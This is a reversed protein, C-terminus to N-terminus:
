YSLAKLELDILCSNRLEKSVFVMASHIILSVGRSKIFTFTKEPAADEPKATLINKCEDCGLSPLLRYIIYGGLYHLIFKFTEPTCYDHDLLESDSPDGYYLSPDCLLNELHEELQEQVERFPKKHSHLLNKLTILMSGPDTQVSARKPPRVLSYVTMLRYLYLFQVTTPHSNSGSGQRIM